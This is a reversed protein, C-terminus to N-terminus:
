EEKASISGRALIGKDDGRTLIEEGKNDRPSVGLM